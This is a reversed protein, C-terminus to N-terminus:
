DSEIRSGEAPFFALDKAFHMLLVGTTLRDYGWFDILERKEPHLIAEARDRAQARGRM